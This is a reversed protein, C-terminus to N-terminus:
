RDVRQMDYCVTKLSQGTMPCKSTNVSGECSFDSIINVSERKEICPCPFDLSRASALSFQQM